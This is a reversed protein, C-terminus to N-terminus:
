DEEEEDEEDGGDIKTLSIQNTGTFFRGDQIQRRFYLNIFTDCTRFSSINSSQNGSALSPNVAYVNGLTPHVYLVGFNTTRDQRFDVSAISNEYAFRIYTVGGTEYLNDFRFLDAEADYSVEVQYCGDCYGAENAAYTGVFEMPDYACSLFTNVTVTEAGLSFDGTSFGDIKFTITEVEGVVLNANTGTVELMGMYSNAPITVESSFSYNAADLTSEDQVVSVTVTRASSSITSVSIPISITEEGTRPVPLDITTSEFQIFSQGGQNDYMPREPECSVLVASFLFLIISLKKM